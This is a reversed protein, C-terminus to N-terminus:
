SRWPLSLEEDDVTSAAPVPLREKRERPVPRAPLLLEDLLRGIARAYPGRPRALALPLGSRRARMLARGDVPLWADVALRLEALERGLVDELERRGGAGPGGTGNVCLRLRERKIGMADLLLALQARGARLQEERAGIVLIVADAGLLAERHCRAVKPLEGPMAILSGVDGVLLPYLSGAADLAAHIAGPRSVEDVHAELQPPALLVPPWGREGGCIWRDVLEGVAGEGDVARVLGLLSGRQPDCGLRLDLSGSGLLDLEVLLTRWRAAAVAALSAACESSGPSGLSGVVAIMNGRGRSVSEHSAEVAVARRASDGISPEGAAGGLVRALDDAALPPRVVDDVGLGLLTEAGRDDLALGLVRLGSARLRLCHAESIGSLEASLLIADAECREVLSLLEGADSASGVVIAAEDRDFLIDEVTREALPTLALLLRKHDDDSV